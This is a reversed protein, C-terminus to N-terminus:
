SATEGYRPGTLDGALDGVSEGGDMVFSDNMSFM